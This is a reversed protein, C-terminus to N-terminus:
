YLTRDGEEPGASLGGALSWARMLEAPNITTVASM